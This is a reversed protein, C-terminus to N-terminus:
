PDANANERVAGQAAKLLDQQDAPSLAAIWREYRDLVVLIENREAVVPNRAVPVSMKRRTTAEHPIPTASSAHQFASAGTAEEAGPSENNPDLM